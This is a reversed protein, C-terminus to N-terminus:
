GRARLNHSSQVIVRGQQTYPSVADSSPVRRASRVRAHKGLVAIAAAAIAVNIEPPIPAAATSQEDAANGRPAPPLPVAPAIPPDDLTLAPEMDIEAATLTDTDPEVASAM